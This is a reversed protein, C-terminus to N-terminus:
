GDAFTSQLSNAQLNFQYYEYAKNSLESMTEGKDLFVSGTAFGNEDRNAYLSISKNVLGSVTLVDM